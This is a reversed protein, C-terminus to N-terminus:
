PKDLLDAFSCGLAETLKTLVKMSPTRRGNEYHAISTQEVGVLEALQSQTLSKAQRLQTLKQGLKNM